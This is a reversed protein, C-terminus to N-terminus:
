KKNPETPAGSTPVGPRADVPEAATAPQNAADTAGVAGADGSTETTAASGDAAAPQAEAPISETVPAAQQKCASMGIASVAALLIASFLKM